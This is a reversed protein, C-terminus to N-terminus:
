RQPSAAWHSHFQTCGVCPEATDYTEAGSPASVVTIPPPATLEQPFDDVGSTSRWAVTLSTRGSPLSVKTWFPHIRPLSRLSAVVASFMNLCDGVGRSGIGVNRADSTCVSGAPSNT